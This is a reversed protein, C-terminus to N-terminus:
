LYHAMITMEPKGIGYMSLMQADAEMEDLLTAVKDYNAEVSDPTNLKLEPMHCKTLFYAYVYNLYVSPDGTLTDAPMAEYISLAKDPKEAYLLAWGLTNAIATDKPNEYNLRYLEGTVNEAQGNKVMAMCYNLTYSLRQPNITRLADYYFSAKEYDGITYYAKAMGRLSPQHNPHEQLYTNFYDIAEELVQQTNPAGVSDALFLEGSLYDLEVADQEPYMNIIDELARLYKRRLLYKGMEMLQQANIHPLAMIWAEFTTADKFPNTLSAALPNISYFRFLDQMYQRRLYAPEMLEQIDEHMGLPGMDGEEMLNRMKESFRGIVESMAYVFSYKDSNCFPGKELVRELFKSGQLKETVQQIDPHRIDFPIFWNILRGFFPFRKMQKFGGFFIDSGQQQMKLVKQINQEMADIRNENEDYDENEEDREVIGNRTIIFPQGKLIEPMITENIKTADNDAQTCIVLQMQLEILEKVAQTSQLLEKLVEDRKKQLLPDQHIMLALVCGTFARQRLVEYSSDNYIHALCILKQKSFRQICSITLASILLACDNVTVDNQGDDSANLFVRLWEGVQESRWHYSTLLSFFAIELTRLGEADQKRMCLVHEIAEPSNDYQQITHLWPKIHPEEMLTERISIDYNLNQLKGKLTRYMEARQPDPTGKIFFESMLRFETRLSEIRDSFGEAPYRSARIALDNLAESVLDNKILNETNM